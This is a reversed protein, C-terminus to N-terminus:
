FNYLVFTDKTSILDDQELRRRMTSPSLHYIELDDFIGQIFLSLDMVNDPRNKKKDKSLEHIILGAYNSYFKFSRCTIEICYKHCISQFRSRLGKDNTYLMVPSKHFRVIAQLLFFYLNNDAGDKEVDTHYSIFSNPLGKIQDLLPYHVGFHCSVYIAEYEYAEGSLQFNTCNEVDVFVIPKHTM